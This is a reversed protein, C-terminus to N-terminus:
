KGTRIHDIGAIAAQSQFWLCSSKGAAPRHTIRADIHRHAHCNCSYCCAIRCTHVRLTEYGDLEVSIRLYTFYFATSLSSCNKESPLIELFVFIEILMQSTLKPTM